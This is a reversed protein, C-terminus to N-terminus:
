KKMKKATNEIAVALRNKITEVAQNKKSEFAPRLFPRAPMKSTGFEIFRWYYAEGEVTYKKGVRNLRRNKASDVYNKKGKRVGVLFTEQGRSSQSRSRYRYLAKRLNGTEGQPALRKAEDVIVKAGASVASRLPRKQIELPLQNLAQQLEKLGTINVTMM